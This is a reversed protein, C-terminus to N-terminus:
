QTADWFDVRKNTDFVVDPFGLDYPSALVREPQIQPTSV